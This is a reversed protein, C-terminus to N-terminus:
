SRTRTGTSEISGSTGFTGFDSSATKEANSVEKLGWSGGEYSGLTRVSRHRSWSNGPEQRSERGASSGVRM